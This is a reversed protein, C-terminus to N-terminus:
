FNEEIWKYGWGGGMAGNGATSMEMLSLMEGKVKGWKLRRQKFFLIKCYLGCRDKVSASSIFSFANTSHKSKKSFPAESVCPAKITTLVFFSHRVMLGFM